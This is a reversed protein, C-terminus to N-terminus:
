RVVEAYVTELTRVVAHPTHDRLYLERGAAGVRERLDRDGAVRAVASALASDDGPPFVVAAGAAEASASINALNSSVVPTGSALAQLM